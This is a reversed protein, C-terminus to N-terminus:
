AARGGRAVIRTLNDFQKMAEADGNNIKTVWATDNQLRALEANAQEVTFSTGRAGGTQNTIFTDEGLRIGINHFMKMVGAYGIQGELSSIAEPDIGLTKAANRAIELNAETRSGWDIKLAERQTDLHQAYDQADATEEAEGLEVLTRVIDPAKDKPVGASRLVAGVKATFDADLESGDAFKVTSFDYEKADAPVGLRAHLAALGEADQPGSPLRVLKDAPAGIFKEADRHAKMTARFAEVPTMKDLGRNQIYGLDEGEIGQYWAPPPPPPPPSNSNSNNPDDAM